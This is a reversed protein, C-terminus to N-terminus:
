NICDSFVLTVSRIKTFIVKNIFDVLSIFSTILIPAFCQQTSYKSRPIRFAMVLLARSVSPMFNLMNCNDM